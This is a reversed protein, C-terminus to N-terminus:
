VRAVNIVNAGRLSICPAPVDQPATRIVECSKQDFAEQIEQILVRCKNSSHYHANDLELELRFTTVCQQPWNHASKQGIPQFIGTDHRLMLKCILRGPIATCMQHVTPALPVQPIINWEFVDNRSVDDFDLSPLVFRKRNSNKGKM